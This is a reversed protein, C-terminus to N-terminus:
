SCDTCCYGRAVTYVTRGDSVAPRDSHLGLNQTGPIKTILTLLLCVISRISIMVEEESQSSDGCSLRQLTM